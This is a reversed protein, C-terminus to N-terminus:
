RRVGVIILVYRSFPTKPLTNGQPKQSRDAPLPSLGCGGAGPSGCQQHRARLLLRPGSDLWVGRQWHCQPPPSTPQQFNNIYSSKLVPLNAYHICPIPSPATERERQEINNIRAFPSFVSPFVRFQWNLNMTFLCRKCTQILCCM